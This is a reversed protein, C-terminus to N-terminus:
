ENADSIGNIFLEIGLEDKLIDLYDQWTAYDEELCETKLNFRQIFQRIRKEGFGFEDRLTICSMACFTQSCTLKVENQFRIIETKDLMTIPCKTVGRWELEKVAADIGKEQMM